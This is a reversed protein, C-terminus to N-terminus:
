RNKRWQQYALNEKSDPFMKELQLGYSAEGDRNNLRHELRVGLWLGRPPLQRVRQRYNALYNAALSYNGDVYEVDAM